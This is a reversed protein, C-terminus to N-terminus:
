RRVKCELFESGRPIPCRIILGMVEWLIDYLGVVKCDLMRCEFKSV